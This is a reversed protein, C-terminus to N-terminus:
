DELMREHGSPCRGRISDHLSPEEDDFVDWRVWHDGCYSAACSPCWFPALEFDFSHVAGADGATLLTKLLDIGEANMTQTLVGTFSTRRVEGRSAAGGETEHSITEIAGCERGCVVCRFHVAADPAVNSAAAAVVTDFRDALDLFEDGWASLLAVQQLPGTPAFLVAASRATSPDTAAARILRDIEALADSAGEWSSWDFNNDPRGALLRADRLVEVLAKWEYTSM